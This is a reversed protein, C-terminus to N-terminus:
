SVGRGEFCWVTAEQVLIESEIALHNERMGKRLFDEKALPDKIRGASGTMSEVCIKM